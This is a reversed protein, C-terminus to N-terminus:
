AVCVMEGENCIPCEVGVPMAKARPLLLRLPVRGDNSCVPCVTETSEYLTACDGCVANLDGIQIYQAECVTCCFRHDPVPAGIREDLTRIRGSIERRMHTPLKAFAPSKGLWRFHNLAAFVSNREFLTEAAFYHYIVSNRLHFRCRAQYLFRFLKPHDGAADFIQALLMIDDDNQCEHRIALAIQYAEGIAGARWYFQALRLRYDYLQEFGKHKRLTRQLAQADPEDAAMLKDFRQAFALLAQRDLETLSPGKYVPFHADLTDFNGPAQQKMDIANLQLLLKGPKVTANKWVALIQLRGQMHLRTAVEYEDFVWSTQNQREEVLDLYRETVVALFVDCDVLRAIYAPVDHYNSADRELHDQDLLVEYGRDKLYGALAHAWANHAEDEWKYAVFVAPPYNKTRPQALRDELAIRLMALRASLAGYHRLIAKLATAGGSRLYRAMEDLTLSRNFDPEDSM